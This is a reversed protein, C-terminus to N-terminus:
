DCGSVCQLENKVQQQDAYETYLGEFPRDSVAFMVDVCQINDYQGDGGSNEMHFIRSIYSNDKANIYAGVDNGYKSPYRWDPSVLKNNERYRKLQLFNEQLLGDKTAFPEFNNTSTSRTINNNPQIYLVVKGLLGGEKSGNEDMFYLTKGDVIRNQDVISEMHFGSSSHYRLKNRFKSQMLEIIKQWKSDAIWQEYEKLETMIFLPEHNPNESSWLALTELWDKLFVSPPNDVSLDVEDGPADHGLTLTGMAISSLQVKLKKQLFMYCGKDSPFLSVKAGSMIDMTLNYENVLNPIEKDIILQSGLVTGNAAYSNVLFKGNFQTAQVTGMLLDSTGTRSDKITWPMTGVDVSTVRFNTVTNINHRFIYLRNNQEFPYLVENSPVSNIELHMEGLAIRDGAFLIERIKYSGLDIGYIGLYAKNNFIFTSLEADIAGISFTDVPFLSTGNFRHITLMGNGPEYDVLYPTNRYSLIHYQKKVKELPAGSKRYVMELEGNSLRYVKLEEGLESYSLVYSYGEYDFVSFVDVEETWETQLAIQTHFSFLDFEFFRLGRELQTVIGERKMGGLNGSYSNHTGRFFFQRYIANTSDRDIQTPERDEENSVHNSSSPTMAGDESCGLIILFKLLTICYIICKTM